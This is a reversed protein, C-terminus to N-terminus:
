RQYLNAYGAYPIKEVLSLMEEETFMEPLKGGFLDEFFEIYYQAAEHDEPLVLIYGGEDSDDGLALFEEESLFMSDMNGFEDAFYVIYGESMANALLTDRLDFIREINWITAVRVEDNLVELSLFDECKEIKVNHVGELVINIEEGVDIISIFHLLEDIEDEIDNFVNGALIDDIEFRSLIDYVSMEALETNEAVQYDPEIYDNAHYAFVNVLVITVLLTSVLLKPLIKKM